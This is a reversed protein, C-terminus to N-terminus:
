EPIGIIKWEGELQKVMFVLNQDKMFDLKGQKLETGLFLYCNQDPIWNRKTDAWTPFLEIYENYSYLHYRYNNKYNTMTYSSLDAAPPAVRYKSESLGTSLIKIQDDLSKYFGPLNGELNYEVFKLSFNKADEKNNATNRNSRATRAPDPSMLARPSSFAMRIEAKDKQLSEDMFDWAELEIKYVKAPTSSRPPAILRVSLTANKNILSGDSSFPIYWNSNNQQWRSGRETWPLTFIPSDSSNQHLKVQLTSQGQSSEDIYTTKIRWKRLSGTSVTMLNKIEESYVQGIDIWGGDSNIYVPQYDQSDYLTFSGSLIGNEEQAFIFFPFGTLLITLILKKM